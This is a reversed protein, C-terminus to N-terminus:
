LSRASPTGPACFVLVACKQVYLMNYADARRVKVAVSRGDALRGRYVIGFAGTGLVNSNDLFVDQYLVMDWKFLLPLNGPARAAVPVPASSASAYGASSSAAPGTSATSPAVPPGSSSPNGQVPGDSSATAAM